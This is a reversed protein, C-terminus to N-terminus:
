PAAQDLYRYVATHLKGRQTGSMRRLIRGLREGEADGREVAYAICGEVHANETNGDDLVCHLSGWVPHEEYYAAFAAVVDPISPKDTVPRM